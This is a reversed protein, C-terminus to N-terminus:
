DIAKIMERAINAAVERYQDVQERTVNGWFLDAPFDFSRSYLYSIYKELKAESIAKQEIAKNVAEPLKTLSEEYVIGGGAAQYLTKGLCLVPKKLMLAEWGVTGTIVTVLDARKVLEVGKISPNALVVKPNSKIAKYFNLPRRGIIPPNDKVVLLWDAPIAKTLAEVVAVQDTSMPTMIMTTAEPEFQLPFFAFKRGELVDLNDYPLRIRIFTKIYRTVEWWLRSLPYPYRLTEPKRRTIIRWSLSAFELLSIFNLNIKNIIHQYDPQLPKDRFSKIFAKAEAKYPKLEPADAKINPLAEHVGEGCDIISHDLIYRKGLRAPTLRLFPVKKYKAVVGMALALAGAVTYTFVIDPKEKEFYNEVYELLACTFAVAVDHNKCQRMIPTQPLTGGKVYIYGVQRDSIIIRNIINKGYKKEFYAIKESNISANLWKEELPEADIFNYNGKMPYKKMENLIYDGGFYICDCSLAQKRKELEEEMEAIVLPTWRYFSPSTSTLLKINKKPM